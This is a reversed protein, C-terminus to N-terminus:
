VFNSRDTWRSLCISLQSECNNGNGHLCYIIDMNKAPNSKIISEWCEIKVKVFKFTLFLSLFFDFSMCLFFRANQFQMDVRKYVSRM